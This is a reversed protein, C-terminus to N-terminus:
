VRRENLWNIFADAPMAQAYYFGQAEHCGLDKLTAAIEPDDIGEAITVLGLGLSLDIISKAIALDAPDKLIGIVFSRDIKLKDVKLTKLYALSSFGTGFDDISLRIGDKRWQQILALSASINDILISETLELELHEPALEADILAQNVDEQLQGHRMQVASLNVAVVFDKLGADVWAKAQRCATHLVWRGIPEILGSEEAIDIFEGPMVLGHGPRHWRILAEAGIVEGTQLNIQPQYHLEFEQNKIARLLANRIEIYRLTNQAMKPEFFKIANPGYKKAENVATDAARMLTEADAADKPYLSLGINFAQFIEIGEIFYPMTLLTLLQHAASAADSGGSDAPLLVMFQDGGLRALCKDIKPYASRLRVSVEKILADGIHHGYTDNIHRLSRLDVQMFALVTQQTLADSIAEQLLTSGGLRNSLGTNPDNFALYSIHALANKERTIDNWIVQLIQRNGRKIATLLVKATFHEGNARVHEWEFADSGYSLAHNIHANAAEASLRGDPQYEPSLDAPSASLLQDLHDMRLMDLAAKNADVFRGAEILM